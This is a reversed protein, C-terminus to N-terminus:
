GVNSASATRRECAQLFAAHLSSVGTLEPHFSAALLNEQEVAIAEGNFSALVTAAAGVQLIRPARIFAVREVKGLLEIDAEFSQNQSGYANRSVTIDLGGIFQQGAVAGEVRESLLIMGACTGLIVGGRRQFVRIPELLGFNVILKSIATSEGGPIVLGALGELAVATKVAVVDAGLRELLQQHERFDGQLALVGVRL